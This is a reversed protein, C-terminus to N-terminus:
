YSKQTPKWIKAFYQIIQNNINILSILCGSAISFKISFQQNKNKWLKEQHHVKHLFKCWCDSCYFHSGIWKSLARMVGSMYLIQLPLLDVNKIEVKNKWRWSPKTIDMKNYPVEFFKIERSIQFVHNEIFLKDLKNKNSNFM